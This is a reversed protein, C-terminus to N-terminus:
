CLGERSFSIPWCVGISIGSGLPPMIPTLDLRIQKKEMM